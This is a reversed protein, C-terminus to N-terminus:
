PAGGEIDLRHFIRRHKAFVGSVLICVRVCVIFEPVDYTHKHLVSQQLAPVKEAITKCVLMAESDQCIKGDYSYISTLGPIINVCATLSTSVIHRALETGLDMSPVTILVLKYCSM